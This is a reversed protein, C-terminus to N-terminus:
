NLIISEYKINVGVLSALKLFLCINTDIENNRIESNVYFRKLVKISKDKKNILFAGDINEILYKDLKKNNFYKDYLIFADEYYLKVLLSRVTCISYNSEYKTSAFKYM